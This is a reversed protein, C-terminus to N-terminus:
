VTATFNYFRRSRMSATLTCYTILFKCKFLELSKTIYYVLGFLIKLSSTFRQQKDSVLGSKVHLSWKVYVLVTNFKARKLEISSLFSSQVQSAQFAIFQVTKFNYHNLTLVYSLMSRYKICRMYISFHLVDLPHCNNKQFNELSKFDIQM